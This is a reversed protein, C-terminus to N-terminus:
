EQSNVKLPQYLVGFNGKLDTGQVVMIYSSKSESTYFSIEAEGNEDTIVQPNWYITSRLDPFVNEQQPSTYKPSYFQKGITPAVPKLLYMGPLKKLFPGVGGHTTIEIFTFETGSVVAAQEEATLYTFYPGKYANSTMVEIGVVDEATYYKLLDLPNMNFFGTEMGDFIYKTYTPRITGMWFGPVKKKLLELLPQKPTQELVTKSITIDAGGDENLNKSGPIKAKATVIVEALMQGDRKMQELLLSRKDMFKQAVTDFLINRSDEVNEIVPLTPYDKEDIEVDVGFSKDKKNLAKILTSVSDTVFVPFNNFSFRGQKDTITEDLFVQKQGDRGMLSVETGAITRFLGTIKGSISFEKEYAYKKLITDNFNYTVWGQTLMLADTATSYPNQFYYYPMEIDGTMDSSLTLYSVINEADRDLSVQSTDIVAVSFSGPVDQNGSDATRLKILVKDKNFYSEKDTIASIKLEKEHWIFVACENLPRNHQDYLTIRNVGPSLSRTSVTLTHPREKLTLSNVTKIVGRCSIVISFSQYHMDATADTTIMLSDKQGNFKTLLITGSSLVDPLPYAAGDSIFATYHTNPKPIFSVVGMGHHVSSFEVVDNGSQDKIIGNVNKSKGFENVAKFGLRQEKGAIFIGGEPMFQLDIPKEDDARVPIQLNIDKGSTIQLMMKRGKSDPKVLTDIYINGKAATTMSKSFLTKYGARLKLNLKQGALSETSGTKLNALLSLRGTKFSLENVTVKWEKAQPDIIRITTQFFLSDGFNRMHQTYARLQYNGQAFLQNTLTFNIHFLGFICAAAVRKVLQGNGDILEIYAINSSDSAAHNVAKVIYGKLWLTDNIKYYPKDYHIFIKERSAISNISDNAEFQSAAQLHLITLLILLYKRM